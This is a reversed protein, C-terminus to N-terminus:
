RRKKERTDFFGRLVPLYPKDTALEVLDIGNSRFTKRLVVRYLAAITSFKERVEKQRTDIEVLEGTESDEVALLGVEPLESERPDTVSVGVLDHRRNMSNLLPQMAALETEFHGTLCFDSILIVVAKRKLLGRATELAVRIDTKKGVPEYFLIERIVRLVHARGKAPPIYLEVRDTFLLLGVRDRNRIASFALVSALEAARERKSEEGSGFFGSASVDIMLLMTLERDERYKKIFPRGQRATVKWDISRIDDGPVYERVEDFDIGSGRFASQYQGSLAENVMRNTRIEISRVKKLIDSISKPKM